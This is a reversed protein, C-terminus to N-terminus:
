KRESNTSMGGDSDFTCPAGLLKRGRLKFELPQGCGNNFDITAYAWLEVYGAGFKRMVAWLERSCTGAPPRLTELPRGQMGWAIRKWTEIM